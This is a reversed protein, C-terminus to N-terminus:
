RHQLLVGQNYQDRHVCPSQKPRLDDTMPADHGRQRPGLSHAFPDVVHDGETLVTGEMSAALHIRLYEAGQM